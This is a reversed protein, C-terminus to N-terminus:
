LCSTTTSCEQISQSSRRIQKLEEAEKEAKLINKFLKTTAAFMYCKVTYKDHYKDNDKYCYNHTVVIIVMKIGKLEESLVEYLPKRFIEGGMHARTYDWLTQCDNSRTIVFIQQEYTEYDDSYVYEEEEYDWYCHEYEYYDEYLNVAEKLDHVCNQYVYYDIKEPEVPIKWCRRLYMEFIKKGKEKNLMIM